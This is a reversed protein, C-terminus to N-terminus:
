KPLFDNTAIDAFTPRKKLIGATEMVDAAAKL